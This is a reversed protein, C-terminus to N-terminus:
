SFLRRFLRMVRWLPPRYGVEIAQAYQAPQTISRPTLLWARPNTIFTPKM